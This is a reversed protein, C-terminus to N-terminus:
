LFPHEFSFYLFVGRTRSPGVGRPIAAGLVTQAGGAHNIAYRLGPSVLTTRERRKGGGEDVQEDDSTVAELMVNFVPTTLWVVSAGFSTSTTAARSGDAARSRPVHSVSANWHTVWSDGVELSVPLGVEVGTGGAGRGKRHNGSPALVALRPAVAVDDTLVAQYRYHLAVDGIGTGRPAATRLLPITYSLQHRQSRLPWEQTFSAEWERARRDYLFAVAHQVVGEEQNYAEEVLFSNDQLKPTEAGLAALPALAALVLSGRAIM